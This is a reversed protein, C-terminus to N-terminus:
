WKSGGTANKGIGALVYVRHLWAYGEGWKKCKMEGVAM